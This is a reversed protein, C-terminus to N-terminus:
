AVHPTPAAEQLAFREETPTHLEKRSSCVQLQFDRSSSGGTAFRSGIDETAIGFGLAPASQQTCGHPFSKPRSLAPM